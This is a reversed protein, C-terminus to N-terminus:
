SSVEEVAAVLDHTGGRCTRCVPMTERGALMSARFARYREGRWITTFDSTFVNGMVFEEGMDPRLYCCPTVSGDVNVVTHDWAMTCFPHRVNPTTRDAAYRSLLRSAPVLDRTAGDDTGVTKVRLADVGWTRALERMAPLEHENHRMAIFQLEIRPKSLGLRKKEACLWAVSRAVTAFDGDQRFTEYTAQSAGDVSLILVDLGSRLLAGGRAQDLFHVNSSVKVVGVGAEKARAIMQPLERNLLPEGYNWLALNRLRPGLEDIAHEFRALSMAPLPKIKGTGTPCTPCALNCLNTPEIMATEPGGAPVVSLYRMLEPPPVVVAGSRSFLRRLAHAEPVARVALSENARDEPALHLRVTGVRALIEPSLAQLNSLVGAAPDSSVAHVLDVSAVRPLAYRQFDPELFRRLKVEVVPPHGLAACDLLAEPLRRAGDATSRLRVTGGGVVCASLKAKRSAREARRRAAVERARRVLLVGNEIGLFNPVPLRTTRSPRLWLAHLQKARRAQAFGAVARARGKAGLQRAWARDDLLRELARAASAPDGPPVLLGTEGDAVAEPIGGVRTAVTPLGCAAAELLAVGFGEVDDDDTEALLVFISARRYLSLLAEEDVFGVATIRDRIGLETARAELERRLTESAGTFVYRLRPRSPALLALAELVTRHGKRPALRSVTLLMEDDDRTQQSAPAPSFREVNVGNEVTHLVAPDIGASRALAHSYSSVCVVADAHSLGRIQAQPYDGMAATVWPAVLDNGHVHATVVGPLAAKLYPVWPGLGANCLHIVDPRDVLAADITLFLDQWLDIRGPPALPTYLPRVHPLGSAVDAGLRSTTYVRVDVGAALLSDALGRAVSEMGGLKPAFDHAVLVVRRAEGSREVTRVIDHAAELNRGVLPRRAHAAEMEPLRGLAAEIRDAISRASPRALLAAGTRALRTARVRQDESKRHAPVLVAAKRLARIEAVANYGAQSVVLSAGALLHHLDAPSRLVTLGTFSEINAPPAGYPGTVLLTELEPFRARVLWHADAVARLYRAADLPQGGGGALAVIRPRRGRSPAPLDRVIPGIVSVPHDRLAGTDVEDEEHPVVLHDFALAAGSSVFAAMAEPRLERLVLVSRVGREALDRVVRLPAHTDFVVLDPAFAAFTAALVAEELPEPLATLARDPDAHPEGSRPPLQVHDIGSRALLSVDAANTVVLIAASPLERALCTARVLHGLGVGNIAHFAIRM